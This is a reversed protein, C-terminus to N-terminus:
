LRHAKVFLINKCHLSVVQRLDKIEKETGFTENVFLPSCQPDFFVLLFLATAATDALNVVGDLLSISKVLFLIGTRKKISM